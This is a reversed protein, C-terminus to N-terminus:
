SGRARERYIAWVLAGVWGFLTWGLLFNILLIASSNRHRRKEAILTPLFYIAAALWGFLVAALLNGETTIAIYVGFIYGIVLLAVAYGVWFRIRLQPASPTPMQHPDIFWQGCTPCRIMGSVVQTPEHEAKCQPCCVSM